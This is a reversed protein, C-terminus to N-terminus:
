IQTADNLLSLLRALRDTKAIYDPYIQRSLTDFAKNFQSLNMLSKNGSKAHEKFTQTYDNKTLAELKLSGMERMNEFQSLNLYDPIQPKCLREFVKRIDDNIGFKEYSKETVPYIKEFVGTTKEEEGKVILFADKLLLTKLYRDLESVQKIRVRKKTNPDIVIRDLYYNFSPFWNIELIWCKHDSDLMLDLGLIHFCNQNAQGEFGMETHYTNVIYPRLSYVLKTCIDKVDQKFKHIDVGKEKIVKMVNTLLRKTGNDTEKFNENNVYKDSDKNLCYNTLHGMLNDQDFDMFEDSDYEDEMDERSKPDVYDETWFRVLGEFAIYAEMEEVGKIMLYMRFDFKKNDILLPNKIYKQAVYAYESISEQDLDRADKIFFIGQGGRGKSPKALLFNEKKSGLFRKYAKYDEPLIFTEPIFDYDNPFMAQYKKLLIHFERKMWIISFRPYRNFYASSEKMMKRQTGSCADIFWFLSGKTESRGEIWDLMEWVEKVPNRECKSYVTNITFVTKEEEEESEMIFGDEFEEKPGESSNKFKSEIHTTPKPVGISNRNYIM